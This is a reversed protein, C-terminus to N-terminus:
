WPYGCTSKLALNNVQSFHSYGCDAIGVQFHGNGYWSFKYFIRLAPSGQLPM